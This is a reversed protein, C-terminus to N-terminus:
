FVANEVIWDIYSTVRTYVGPRGPQGCQVGWSVVGVVVWRRNPLMVMLPAGSDSQCSDKGDQRGGACMSSSEIRNAYAAVCDSQKWIPMSVEMLVDSQPGGFFQTGWGAVAANHGEWTEGIPPLCIPWIYTNFLTPRQLKVIAIDNEYTITDYDEHERIEAVRFDRARTEDRKSFDYEGLRVFLEEAKLGDTCHAATLVHRDTILAGGGFAKTYGRTLLAAMWPWETPHAPRGGSIKPFQGTSVGCGREEPRNVIRGESPPDVTDGFSLRTVNEVCCVGISTQEIVCLYGMVEGINQQTNFATCHRSHMCRGKRGDPATCVQYRQLLSFTGMLLDLSNLDVDSTKNPTMISNGMFPAKHVIEHICSITM